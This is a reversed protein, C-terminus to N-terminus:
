DAYDLIYRQKSIDLADFWPKLKYTYDYRLKYKAPADQLRTMSEHHTAHVHDLYWNDLGSLIYRMNLQIDEWCETYIEDFGGSDLFTDRRTLMMAATNGVVKCTGYTDQKKYGRHTCQLFGHEDVYAIQGAHQVTSDPFLLRCGISGVHAKSEGWKLMADVCNTQFEIDDNCMLVWPEKVHERIIDNNNSAFHYHDLQLLECTEKSYNNKLYTVLKQLNTDTSGTDCIYLKYKTDVTHKDISNLCTTLLKYNDKSLIVIAVQMTM